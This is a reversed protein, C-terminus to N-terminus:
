RVFPLHGYLATLLLCTCFIRFSEFKNQQVTRSSHFHMWFRRFGTCHFGEPGTTTLHSVFRSFDAAAAVGRITRFDHCVEFLHRREHTTKRGDVRELQVAVAVSSAGQIARPISDCDIIEGKLAINPRFHLFRM